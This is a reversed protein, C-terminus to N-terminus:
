RGICGHRKERSRRRLVAGAGAKRMERCYTFFSYKEGMQQRDAARMRAIAYHRPIAHFARGPTMAGGEPYGCANWKDTARRLKEGARLWDAYEPTWPFAMEVEAASFRDPMCECLYLLMRRASHRVHLIESRKALQNLDQGELLLCLDYVFETRRSPYINEFMDRSRNDLQHLIMDERCPVSAAGGFLPCPVAQEWLDSRREGYHKFVHRHVELCHSRGQIVGHYLWPASGRYVDGGTPLLTVAREFHEEPVAIDYDNMLRPVGVAYFCRFALGKLFLVPISAENLIQVKESLWKLGVANNAQHYQHLGRLRPVMEPPFGRWGCRYGLRSLLLLFAQGCADIDLGQVLTHIDEETVAAHLCTNVLFRERSTFIEQNEVPYKGQARM